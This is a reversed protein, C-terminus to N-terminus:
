LVITDSTTLKLLEYKEKEVEELQRLLEELERKTKSREAKLTRELESIRKRLKELEVDATEVENKYCAYLDPMIDDQIHKTVWEVMDDTFLSALYLDRGKVADRINELVQIEEAKSPNDLEISIRRKM